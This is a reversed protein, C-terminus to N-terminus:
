DCDIRTLTFGFQFESSFFRHDSFYYKMRNVFFLIIMRMFKFSFSQHSSWACLVMPTITQVRTPVSPAIANTTPILQKSEHMM